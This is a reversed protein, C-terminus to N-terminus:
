ENVKLFINFKQTKDSLQEMWTQHKSNNIKNKLNKNLFINWNRATGSKFSMKLCLPMVLIIFNTEGKKENKITM